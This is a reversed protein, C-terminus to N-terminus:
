GINENGEPGTKERQHGVAVNLYIRIDIRSYIGALDKSVREIGFGSFRYLLKEM